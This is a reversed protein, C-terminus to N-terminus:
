KPRQCTPCTCRKEQHLAIGCMLDTAEKLLSDVHALDFSQISSGELSSLVRLITLAHVSRTVFKLDVRDSWGFIEVPDTASKPLALSLYEYKPESSGGSLQTKGHQCDAVDVSNQPAIQRERLSKLTQIKSVKRRCEDQISQIAHLHRWCALISRRSKDVNRVMSIINALLRM